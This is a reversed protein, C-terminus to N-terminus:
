HNLPRATIQVRRRTLGRGFAISALFPRLAPFVRSCKHSYVLAGGSTHSRVVGSLEPM